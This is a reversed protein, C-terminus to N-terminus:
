PKIIPSSPMRIRDLEDIKIRIVEVSQKAGSFAILLYGNHEIVHPYDILRGGVLYVMKNFHIGDDSVAITMPDRREPNPNSVLVYRGDQLRLGCFKSTADPFNTKVPNSWTKGNDPSFARFIRKSKANDRYLAVLHQNDPLVWWYPEEAKFDKRRYEVAPISRWDNYAKVGGVLTFVNQMGDRRSMMWEGNPLQQPPFNNITNDFVMGLHDWQRSQGNWQFAQLSLGEGQYGPAKYRSVLALLKGQYFWFGRAIWGYDGAPADTIDKAESWTLGDKSTAYSVKQHARDHGPEINRHQGPAARVVGPGDSWMAWYLDDYFFLYNHQNVRRGDMSRVDHVIAHESHEFRPLKEFDIRSSNSPVWPGVLMMSDGAVNSSAATEQARSQVALALLIFAYLLRKKMGTM